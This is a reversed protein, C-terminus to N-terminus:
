TAGASRRRSCAHFTGSSGEALHVNSSSVRNQNKEQAVGQKMHISSAPSPVLFGLQQLDDVYM